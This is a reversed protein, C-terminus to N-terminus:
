FCSFCSSKAKKFYTSILMILYSRQCSCSSSPGTHRAMEELCQQPSQSRQQPNQVLCTKTLHFFCTPASQSLFQKMSNLDTPSRHTLLVYVLVGFSYLDVSFSYGHLSSSSFIEPAMYGPTGAIEYSKTEQEEESFSLSLGFDVLYCCITKEINMDINMMGQCRLIINEPKLDRYLIRKLHLYSLINLLQHCISWKVNLMKPSPSSSSLYDFLSVGPIYELILFSISRISAIQQFSYGYFRPINPHSLQSLISIEHHFIRSPVGFKMMKYVVEQDHYRSTFVRGFKGEGVYSHPEKLSSFPIYWSNTFHDLPSGDVQSTSVSM